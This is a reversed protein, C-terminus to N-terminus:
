LGLMANWQKTFAGQSALYDAMDAPALLKFDSLKIGGRMPPAGKRVSGYILYPNQQQVEQGRPSMM